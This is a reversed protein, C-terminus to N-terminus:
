RDTKQAPAPESEAQNVQAAEDSTLADSVPTRVDDTAGAVPGTPATSTVPQSDSGTCGTLVSAMLALSLAVSLIRNM